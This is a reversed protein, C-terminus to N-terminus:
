RNVATASPKSVEKDGRKGGTKERPSLQGRQAVHQSGPIQAWACSVNFITPWDNKKAPAVKRFLHESDQDVIRWTRM